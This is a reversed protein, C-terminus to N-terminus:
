GRARAGMPPVLWPTCPLCLVTPEEVPVDGWCAWLGRHGPWPAARCAIGQPLGGTGVPHATGGAGARPRLARWGGSSPSSSKRAQVRAWRSFAFAAGCSVRCIFWAPQGPQAAADLVLEPSTAGPVQSVPPSWPTPPSGGPRRPARAMSLTRSGQGLRRLPAEGGAERLVVPVGAAPPRDGLLDPVGADGRDGGAVGAAGHHPDRGPSCSLLSWGPSASVGMGCWRM